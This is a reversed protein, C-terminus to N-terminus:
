TIPYVGIVNGLWGTDIIAEEVISEIRCESESTRGISYVMQAYPPITGAVVTQDATRNGVNDYTYIESILQATNPNQIWSKLQDLNDYM